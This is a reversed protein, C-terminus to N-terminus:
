KTNLQSLYWWTQAKLGYRRRRWICSSLGTAIFVGADLTLTLIIQSGATQFGTQAACLLAHVSRVIFTFNLRGCFCCHWSFVWAGLETFAASGINSHWDENVSQCPQWDLLLRTKYAKLWLDSRHYQQTWVVKGCIAAGVSASRRLSILKAGRRGLLYVLVFTSLGGAKQGWSEGSGLELGWGRWGLHSGRSASTSAQWMHAWSLKPWHFSFSSHKSDGEPFAGLTKSEIVIAPCYFSSHAFRLTDDNQKQSWGLPLHFADLILKLFSIFETHSLLSFIVKAAEDDLQNTLLAPGLEQM